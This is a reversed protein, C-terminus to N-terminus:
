DSLERGLITCATAQKMMRWSRFCLRAAGAAARRAASSAPSGGPLVPTSPLGLTTRTGEDILLRRARAVPDMGWLGQEAGLRTGTFLHFVNLRWRLARALDFAPAGGMVRVPCTRGALWAAAGLWQRALTADPVEDSELRAGIATWDIDRDSAWIVAADLFFRLRLGYSREFLAHVLAHWLLETAAPVRTAGGPRRVVVAGANMREWAQHAPITTSTSTHLEVNVGRENSLPALHHHLAYRREAGHAAVFGADHLRTWTASALDPHVLVDVDDVRRADAYPYVDRVLRRAAGKLLV